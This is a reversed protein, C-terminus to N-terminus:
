YRLTNYTIKSAAIHASTVILFRAGIEWWKYKRKASNWSIISLSAGSALFVFDEGAHDFDTVWVLGDQSQWFAPSKDGADYNSYKRKWSESGWWSQPQVGWEKEFIRRDAEYAEHAGNVIGGLVALGLALYDSKYFKEGPTPLSLEISSLISQEPYKGFQAFLFAPLM